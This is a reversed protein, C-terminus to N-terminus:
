KFVRKQGKALSQHHVSDPWKQVRQRAQRLAKAAATMARKRDQQRVKRSRMLPARISAFPDTSLHDSFHEILKDVVELLAVSDRAKSLARGAYRYATDETRYTQNGLSDRMLRLLARVKKICVRADHIAEDKNRAAPKLNELAIDIQELVVRRLGESLGEDEKLRYSMLSRLRGLRWSVSYRNQFVM